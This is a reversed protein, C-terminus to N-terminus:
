QLLIAELEKVWDFTLVKKRLLGMEKLRDFDDNDFIKKLKNYLSEANPEFLLEEYELMEPIGGASSGIVPVEYYLSEMVTNPFSDAISPVIMLDCDVLLPLPNSTYGIFEIEKFSENASIFDNLLKGSGVVKLKCKYGNKILLQFADILLHLGKRKDDINGIFILQKFDKEPKVKDIIIEGKEVIWSPNVNNFLIKFKPEIREKLKVHRNINIKKDYECQVIIKDVRKLVFREILTLIKLISKLIFNPIFKGELKIKKYGIFDEWIIFHIRKFRLLVCQIAYPVAVIIFSDYNIKKISKLTYYNCIFNLLSNPIFRSQKNSIDHRILNQHKNIKAKSPIFLHVKNGNNVIGNVIEIFRRTGGTIKGTTYDFATYLVFTKM